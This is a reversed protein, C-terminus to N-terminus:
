SARCSASPPAPRPSAVRTKLNEANEAHGAAAAFGDAARQAEGLFPLAAGLEEGGDAAQAAQIALGLADAIRRARAALGDVTDEALRLRAEEYADLATELPQRVAPPYHVAPLQFAAPAAGGM